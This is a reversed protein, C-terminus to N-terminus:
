VMPRRPRYAGNRVVQQSVRNRAAQETVEREIERQDADFQVRAREAEDATVLSTLVARVKHPDFGQERYFVDFSALAAEAERVAAQAARLVSRSDQNQSM